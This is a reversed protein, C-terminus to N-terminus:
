CQHPSASQQQSGDTAYYCDCRNCSRMHVSFDLIVGYCITSIRLYVNNIDHKLPTKLDIEVNIKM